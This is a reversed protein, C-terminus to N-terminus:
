PAALWFGGVVLVVALLGIIGLVAATIALLGHAELWGRLAKEMAQRAGASNFTTKGIPLTDFPWGATEGNQRVQLDDHVM